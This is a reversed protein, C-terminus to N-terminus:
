YSFKYDKDLIFIDPIAALIHVLNSFEPLMEFLDNEHVTQVIVSVSFDHLRIRAKIWFERVNEARSGTEGDM